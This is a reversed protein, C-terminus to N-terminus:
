KEIGLFSRKDYIFDKYQGDSDVYHLFTQLYWNNEFPKRWHWLDCGRYICIDGPNLLIEVSDSEDENKSFYIPSVEGDHALSLTASIECSSRDRHKTLENGKLYIRTYSYTPLLNIKIKESLEKCSRDLITECLPDSYFCYAGPVQSDNKSSKGSKVRIFFYDQVFDLFDKDLFNRIVLYGNEKFSM